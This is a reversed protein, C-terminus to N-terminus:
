RVCCFAVWVHVFYLTYSWNNKMSGYSLKHSRLPCKKHNKCFLRWIWNVSWNWSFFQLFYRTTFNTFIWSKEMPTNCKLKLLFIAFFIWDFFNTFICGNEVRKSFRVEIERSFNRFASFIQNFFDHFYLPKQREQDESM